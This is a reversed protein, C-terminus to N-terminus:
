FQFGAILADIQAVAPDDSKLFYYGTDTPLTKGRVSIKFIFELYDKNFNEKDIPSILEKLQSNYETVPINSLVRRYNGEPQLDNQPGYTVFKFNKDENTGVIKYMSNSLKQSSDFKFGQASIIEISRAPSFEVEVTYDGRTFSLTTDLIGKLLPSPKTTRNFTWDASYDLKLTPFYPSTYTQKLNQAINQEIQKQEDKTVIIKSDITKKDSVVQNSTTSIDKSDTAKATQNSKNEENNTKNVAVTAQSKQNNAVIFGAAASVGGVLLLCAIIFVINKPSQMLNKM